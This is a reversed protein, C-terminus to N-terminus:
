RDRRGAGARRSRARAIRHALPPEPRAPRRLASANARKGRSHGPTLGPDSRASDARHDSGPRVGRTSLGPAGCAVTVASPMINEGAQQQRRESGSRTDSCRYPAPSRGTLGAYSGSLEESGPKERGDSAKWARMSVLVNSTHTSRAEARSNRSHQCRRIISRPRSVAASGSDSAGPLAAARGSPASSPTREVVQAREFGLADVDHALDDGLELPRHHEVRDALVRRHM